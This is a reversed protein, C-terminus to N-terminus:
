KRTTDDHIGFIRVIAAIKNCTEIQKQNKTFLCKRQIRKKRNKKRKDDHNKDSYFAMIVYVVYIM